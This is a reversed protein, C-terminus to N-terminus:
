KWTVTVSEVAPVGSVATDATDAAAVWGYGGQAAGAPTDAAGAPTKGDKLRILRGTKLRSSDASIVLGVVSGPTSAASCAL